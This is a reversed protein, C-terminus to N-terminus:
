FERDWGSEDDEPDGDDPPYEDFNSTDCCNNIVIPQFPPKMSRNKLGEWNFGDFWKHKRVDRLGHMGYGLRHRCLKKILQQANRTIRRKSFDVSDIGKLIMNYTKMPDTGTFPPSGTLLEFMLIGLSWLDVSLDHGKNLIIEPAVYEPTGCFTWTKRGYGILKAFGFDVLKIYGKSDVLLNEPKLDRYVVGREHLYILAEVVCATFFRTTPDDFYGKDRLITWLEGGLCPEMIMYLYKSDKFTKYLRVIFDCQVAAMINKENLIHEQQRTDVIHQKKLQKMAYSRSSDKGIQILEVRGFGGVGLTKIVRIDQFTKNALHQSESDLANNTSDEDDYLRHINDLKSILAKYSCATSVDPDSAIINATRVDESELAREGFFDGAHLYRLFVEGEGGDDDGDADEKEVRKKNSDRKNNNNSSSNNNNNTNTTTNNNNANM